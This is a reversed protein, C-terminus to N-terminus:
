LEGRVSDVWGEGGGGGGGSGERNTKWIKRQNDGGGAIAGIIIKKNSLAVCGVTMAADRMIYVIYSYKELM